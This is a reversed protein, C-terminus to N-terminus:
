GNKGGFELARWRNAITSMITREWSGHKFWLSCSESVSACNNCVCVCFDLMSYNPILGSCQVGGELRYATHRPSCINSLEFPSLSQSWGGAETWVSFSFQTKLNTNSAGHALPAM